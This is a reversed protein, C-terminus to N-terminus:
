EEDVPVGALDYDGSATIKVSVIDGPDLPAGSRVITVGDVDPADRQSRAAYVGESEARDIIVRAVKGIEAALKKKSIKRQILMLRDRRRNKVNEPTQGPMDFAPTGEERSYTFVGLKDFKIEKIFSELEKFEEETEGPFGAMLTTRLAADPMAARFREIASRLSAKTGRRGMRALVADSAHQVPMDLYRCVKPTEAMASIIDDTLREPYCYMLRIFRLAPIQAIDRILGALVPKGYIDAGYLSTDQAVLILEKVGAAALSEAEAILEDRPRSAYRGRIGPIACYACRNDCGEAIKLYAYHGTSVLRGPSEAKEASVGLLGAIISAAGVYDEFLLIRNAGPLRTEMEDKYRRAMCGAALVLRGKGAAQAVAAASEDAASKIFGCTNVIIADAASVDGTIDFGGAKLIGLLNESDALNKDCGLSVLAVAPRNGM